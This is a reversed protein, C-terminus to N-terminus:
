ERSEAAAQRAFEGRPVRFIIWFLIAGSAALGAALLFLPRYGVAAIMYGAALAMGAFTAGAGLMFVSAMTPRWRPAVLQQSFLRIPGVSVSFLASSCILGLGAVSWHSALALPVLCAAMGLTGLSITRHSGWRAVLLPALLAAPVSLLQGAGSLAGIITTSVGLGEDMFVNFFTLATGRGGYRLAMILGIALFLGYPIPSASGTPTSPVVEAPQLEDGASSSLLTLAAPILVLGALWLPYRYPAAEGLTLGLPSAILGPLLGALLSGIWAALPVLAIHFSFVHSREELGTADMMFPLGNVLYFAFGSNALVSATLLWGSRWGGAVFEALPLALFGTAMLGLGGILTRRSGWRTGMAGAPLCLLAFGLASM